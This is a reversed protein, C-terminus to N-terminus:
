EKRKATSASINNEIEWQLLKFIEEGFKTKPSINKWM